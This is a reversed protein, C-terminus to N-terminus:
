LVTPEVTTRVQYLVKYILKTMGNDNEKNQLKIIFYEVM